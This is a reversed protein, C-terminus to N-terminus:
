QPIFVTLKSKKFKLQHLSTCRIIINIHLFAIVCVLEFIYLWCMYRPNIQLINTNIDNEPDRPAQMHCQFLLIVESTERSESQDFWSSRKYPPHDPIDIINILAIETCNISMTWMFNWFTWLTLFNSDNSQCKIPHHSSCRVQLFHTILHQCPQRDPALHLHNAYPGASAVTM